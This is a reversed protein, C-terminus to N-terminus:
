RENVQAPSTKEQAPMRSGPQQQSYVFFGYTAVLGMVFGFFLFGMGKESPSAESEPPLDKQM